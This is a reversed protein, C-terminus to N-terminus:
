PKHHYTPSSDFPAFDEVSVPEGNDIKDLLAAVAPNNPDLNLTVGCITTISSGCTPDTIGQNTVRQQEPDDPNTASSVDVTFPMSIPAVQKKEKEGGSVITSIGMIAVIACIASVLNKLSFTKM